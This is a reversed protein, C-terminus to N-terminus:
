RLIQVMQSQLTYPLLTCHVDDKYIDINASSTRLALELLSELRTPLVDDINKSLEAECLSLLQVVFDGQDLLLYHKM